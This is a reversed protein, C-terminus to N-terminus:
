RYLPNGEDLHRGMEVVKPWVSKEGLLHLKQALESFSERDERSFYIRLLTLYPQPNMSNIKIAEKLAEEALKDHGFRLYIDAEALMEYEPPLITQEVSQPIDTIEIPKKENEPITSIVDSVEGGGEQGDADSNYTYRNARAATASRRRLYWILSSATFLFVSSAILRDIMVSDLMGILRDMQSERSVDAREPDAHGEDGVIKTSKIEHDRAEVQNSVRQKGSIAIESSDSGASETSTTLLRQRASILQEVADIEAKLEDLTRTSTKGGEEPKVPSSIHKRKADSPSLTLSMSMGGFEKTKQIEAAKDGAQQIEAASTHSALGVSLILLLLIRSSRNTKLMLKSSMLNLNNHEVRAEICNSDADTM